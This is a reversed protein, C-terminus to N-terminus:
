RLEPDVRQRSRVKVTALSRAIFARHAVRTAFEIRVVTQCDPSVRALM